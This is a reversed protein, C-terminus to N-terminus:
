VGFLVTVLQLSLTIYLAMLSTRRFLGVPLNAVIFMFVMGIIAFMGQRLFTSGANATEKFSDVASASAVMALGFLVTLITLGLLLYFQRSQARFSQTTMQKLDTM